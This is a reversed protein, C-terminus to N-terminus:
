NLIVLTNDSTQPLWKFKGNVMAGSGNDIAEKQWTKTLTYSSKIAFLGMSTGLAVGILFMNVNTLNNM